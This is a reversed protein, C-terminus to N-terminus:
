QKPKLESLDVETRVRGTKSSKIDAFKGEIKEIIFDSGNYEVTMGISLNTPDFPASSSSIPAAVPASVPAGIMGDTPAQKMSSYWTIEKGEQNYSSAKVKGKVEPTNSDFWGLVEGVFDEHSTRIERPLGWAELRDFMMAIRDEVSMKETSNLIFMQRVKRGKYEDPGLVSFNFTVTPNGASSVSAKAHSYVAEFEADIPLPVNVLNSEAKRAKEFQDHKKSMYSKFDASVESKAM